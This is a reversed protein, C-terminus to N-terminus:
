FRLIIFTSLDHELTGLCPPYFLDDQFHRVHSLAHFISSQKPVDFMSHYVRTCTPYYSRPIHYSQNLRGVITSLKHVICKVNNDHVSKSCKIMM